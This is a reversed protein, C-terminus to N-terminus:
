STLCNRKEKRHLGPGGRTRYVPLLGKDAWNRVTGPHVGLLQAAERLSLWNVDAKM